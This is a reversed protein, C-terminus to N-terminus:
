RKGSSHDHANPYDHMDKFYLSLQHFWPDSKDGLLNEVCNVLAKTKRRIKRQIQGEYIAKKNKMDVTENATDKHSTYFPEYDVGKYLIAYVVRAIKVAVNAYVLKKDKFHANLIKRAQEKLDSEQKVIEVLIKGATIFVNRSFHNIRKALHGAFATEGSIYQGPACGVYKLFGKVDHFRSINGVEAIIQTASTESLGPIVAIKKVLRALLPESAVLRTVENGIREMIGANFSLELMYSKLTVLISPQLTISAYEKFAAERRKVAGNTTKSVVITGNLISAIAEGFNGNSKLLAQMVNNAWTTDLKFNKMPLGWATLIRKIRNKIRTCDREVFLIERTVARIQRIIDLPIYSGRALGSIGLEALTLADRGDEHLDGAYKKLLGANIVRLDPKIVGWGSFSELIDLVYATQTTAEMVVIGLLYKGLFRCMNEMGEPSRKFEQIALKDIDNGRKVAVCATVYHNHIDLGAGYQHKIRINRPKNIQDAM